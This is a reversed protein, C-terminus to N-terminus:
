LLWCARCSTCGSNVFKLLGEDRGPGFPLHTVIDTLAPSHRACKMHEMRTLTLILYVRLSPYLTECDAMAAADTLFRTGRHVTLEELVPFSCRPSTIYKEIRVNLFAMALSLLTPAVTRLLKAVLDAYQREVADDDDDDYRGSWRGGEMVKMYSDEVLMDIELAEMETYYFM